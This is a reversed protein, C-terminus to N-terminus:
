YNNCSLAGYIMATIDYHTQEIMLFKLVTEFWFYNLKDCQDIHRELAHCIYLFQIVFM